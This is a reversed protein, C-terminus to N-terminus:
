EEIPRFYEMDDLRGQPDDVWIAQIRMGVLDIKEALIDEPNVGRIPALFITDAGDLKVTATILSDSMTFSTIVGRDSVEIWNEDRGIDIESHCKGCILKPPVYVLGCMQCRIGFIRKDKLRELFRDSINDRKFNHSSLPWGGPISITEEKKLKDLKDRLKEKEIEDM